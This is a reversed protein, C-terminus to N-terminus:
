ERRTTSPGTVATAASLLAARAFRNTPISCGSLAVAPPMAMAIALFVRTRYIEEYRLTEMPTPGLHTSRTAGFASETGRVRVSSEQDFTPSKVQGDAAALTVETRLSPAAALVPEEDGSAKM